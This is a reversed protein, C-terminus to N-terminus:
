KDGVGNMQAGNSAAPKSPSFLKQMDNVAQEICHAFKLSDTENSSRFSTILFHVKDENMFYSIGYGDERQPGFGGGIPDTKSLKGIVPDYRLPSQSTSLLDSEYFPRLKFLEPVSGTFKGAFYLGLLHRDVARGNTADFKYMTQHQIANKLHLIKM